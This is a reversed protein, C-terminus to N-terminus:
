GNLAALTFIVRVSEFWVVPSFLENYNLGEVQSFGQAVLQAKKWGDSKIDFVWQCGIIKRGKPPDTLKFVSHKRLSELEELCATKWEKQAAESFRMLDRYHWECVNRVDSLKGGAGDTLKVTASLLFNILDAGGEQVIRALYNARKKGKGEYPPSKPRNSSGSPAPIGETLRQFGQNSMQESEIPNQNGYINDPCVVPQRACSSCRPQLGSPGEQPQAVPDTQLRNWLYLLINGEM